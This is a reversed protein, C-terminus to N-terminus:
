FSSGDDPLRERLMALVKEVDGGEHGAGIRVAKAGYDFVIAGSGPVAVRFMRATTGALSVDERPNRVAALDYERTRGFPGAFTRVTLTRPGVAIEERGALSAVAQWLALAGGLTWAALWFALFAFGGGRARTALERIAAIEGFGWGGLWVLTFLGVGWSRRLRTVARVGGPEHQITV